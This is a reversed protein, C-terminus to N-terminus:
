GKYLSVRRSPARATAATAMSRFGISTSSAQHLDQFSSASCSTLEGLSHVAQVLLSRGKVPNVDPSVRINWNLRRPRPAVTELIASDTTASEAASAECARAAPLVMVATICESRRIM